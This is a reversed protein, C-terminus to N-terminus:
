EGPVLGSKVLADHYVDGNQKMKADEYPAGLRRYFEYSAGTLAGLIDNIQQYRMGRAMWYEILLLTIAYNLDGAREVGREKMDLQFRELTSIYPM